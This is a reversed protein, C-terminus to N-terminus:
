KFMARVYTIFAKLLVSSDKSGFSRPGIILRARTRAKYVISAIHENFQLKIDKLMGLDCAEICWNLHEKGLM